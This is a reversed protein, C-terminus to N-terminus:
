ILSCKNEKWKLLFDRAIGTLVDETSFNLVTWGMSVATNTKTLDAQYGKGRVHRGSSWIGGSIEVALKVKPISFDFRWRRTPEFRYEREVVGLHLARLDSLMILDQERLGGRSGEITRIHAPDYRV